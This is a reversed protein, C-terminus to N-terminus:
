PELARHAFHKSKRESPKVSSVRHNYNWVVQLFLKDIHHMKVYKKAMNYVWYPAPKSNWGPEALIRSNGTIEEKVAQPTQLGKRDHGDGSPTSTGKRFVLSTSSLHGMADGSSAM